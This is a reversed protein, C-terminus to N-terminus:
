WTHRGLSGCRQGFVDFRELRQHELLARLERDVIVSISCRFSRIALNLRM